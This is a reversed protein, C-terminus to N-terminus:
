PYEPQALSNVTAAIIRIGRNIILNHRNTAISKTQQAAAIWSPNLSRGPRFVSQPNLM